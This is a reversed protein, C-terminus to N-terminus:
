ARPPASLAEHLALALEAPDAPKGIFNVGRRRMEEEAERPAFGSLFLVRLDPRVARMRDYTELGDMGPMVLDLVVARVEPAGRLAHLGERGGGASLTQYGFSALIRELTSCVLPDDDVILILGSGRPVASEAARAGDAAAPAPAAPWYISVLAGKEPSAGIDIGGEHQRVIGSVVSLGLGTGEGVPKTTFFPELLRPLVEPPIGPGDDAVELVQYRGPRAAVFASGLERELTAPHVSIWIRGKGALADRANFCLNLLVQEVQGADAMIWAPADGLDLELLVGRGLAAGLMKTLRSILARLDTPRMHAERKRSYTLLQSVLHAARKLAAIIREVDPSSPHEPGLAQFVIQALGSAAMLINNFEHAVGGALRGVSEMKQARMLRREHERLEATKFEVLASIREARGYLTLVVWSTLYMLVLARGLVLWSQESRERTRFDAAPVLEISWRRGAVDVTTAVADSRAASLDGKAYLPQPSAPDTVDAVRLGKVNAGAGALLRELADGVRYIGEVAGDAAAAGPTRVPALIVVSTQTGTEQVLRMGASAAPAGTRLALKLTEGLPGGVDLGLAKENGKMPEVYLIPYYEPARSRPRVAGPGALETVAYRPLGSARADDEFARRRADTVRPRWELALLAPHRGLSARAFRGFEARGVPARSEFLDAASSVADVGEALGVRLAASADDVRREAQARVLELESRVAYAHIAAVTAATAFMVATVALKGRRSGSPGRGAWLLILPAAFVVGVADGVWWTAWSYPAERLPITRFLLLGATGWLSATLCALPGAVMIFRFLAREASLPERGGTARRSLAVAALAQVAAGVGIWAALVVPGLGSAGHTWATVANAAFSGLLAGPWLEAGWLWLAAVAIGASPWVVTAYGPPIAVLLALRAVAFYAAALLLVREVRSRRMKCNYRL